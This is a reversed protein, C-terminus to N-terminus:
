AEHRLRAAAAAFEEPTNLNQFARLEPDFPRLEAATVTRMRVDPFFDVIRLRNAELRPTIADLCTTHYLAHLTQLEGLVHPIIVDYGARQASLYRLMAAHLFPMDCAVVLCYPTTSHYLASYIGGLSGKGPWVDGVMPLGLEAYLDPTNTVMLCHAFVSRLVQAVREILCQGGLSMLAKNQGMRSSQGGALIVGTIETLHQEPVTM